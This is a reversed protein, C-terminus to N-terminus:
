SQRVYLSRNEFTSGDQAYGSQTIQMLQGDDSLQRVSYAICVGDKYIASDLTREDLRTMSISDAVDSNEYPYHVGDPMATYAAYSERGQADTWSMSIMYGSGNADPAIRYLGTQPPMGVQYDSQTPDLEWLGIFRDDQADAM